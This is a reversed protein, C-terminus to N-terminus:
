LFTTMIHDRNAFCSALYPLVVHYLLLLLPLLMTVLANYPALLNSCVGLFLSHDDPDDDASQPVFEEIVRKPTTSLVQANGDEGWSPCAISYLRVKHPRGRDHNSNKRGAAM